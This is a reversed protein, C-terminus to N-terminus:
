AEVTTDDSCRCWNTGDFYVPVGTGNGTTEGDKLGDTAFAEDGVAATAAVTALQAVTLNQKQIRVSFAARLKDISVRDVTEARLTLAETSLDYAVRGRTAGAANLFNLSGAVTGAVVGSLNQLELVSGQNQDPGETTLRAMSRALSMHLNRAPTDTGIGLDGAATIRLVEAPSGGSGTQVIVAGYGNAIVLRGSANNFYISSRESGGQMIKLGRDVAGLTSDIAVWTEGGSLLHLIEAPSATGIGVRGDPDRFLRQAAPIDVFVTKSGTGWSVANGANSSAVIDDRSLTDPSGAAVTAVGVEWDTGDTAVYFTTHGDGIADVFRSFGELAGNLAYTGTGTTASTEVVRDAITFTM